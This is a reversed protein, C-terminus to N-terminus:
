KLLETLFQTSRIDSDNEMGRYRVIVTNGKARMADAILQSQKPHHRMITWVTNDPLPLDEYLSILLLPPDDPSVIALPSVREVIDIVEPDNLPELYRVGLYKGMLREHDNMPLGKPEWQRPDFTAIPHLAAVGVLRTSMAGIAEADWPIFDELLIEDLNSVAADSEVEQQGFEDQDDADERPPQADGDTDDEADEFFPKADDETLQIPGDPLEARPDDIEGELLQKRIADDFLDDHMALYLALNGGAEDGLGAVRSPDIHLQEAYFRIFQLAMQADEFPAPFPAANTERYDISAVSVGAALLGRIDFPRFRNENGTIFQGGHFFVVLPTPGGDETPARYLDFHHKDDPGYKVNNFTPELRGRRRNNRERWRERQKEIFARAEEADLKGDDNADSDPYRQLIRALTRNNEDTADDPIRWRSERDDDRQEADNGDREQPDSLDDQADAFPASAILSSM